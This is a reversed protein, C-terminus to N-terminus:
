HWKRLLRRKTLRYRLRRIHRRLLLQSRNVKTLKFNVKLMSLRLNPM